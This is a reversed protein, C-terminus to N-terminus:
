SLIKFLRIKLSLDQKINANLKLKSLMDNKDKLQLKVNELQTISQELSLSVCRNEIDSYKCSDGSSKLYSEIDDLSKQQDCFDKNTSIIYDINGKEELTWIESNDGIRVRKFIKKKGNQNLIAYDGEKVTKINSGYLLNIM